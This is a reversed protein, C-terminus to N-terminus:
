DTVKRDDDEDPDATDDYEQDVFDEGPELAVELDREKKDPEDAFVTEDEAEGPDVDDVESAPIDVRDDSVPPFEEAQDAPQQTM